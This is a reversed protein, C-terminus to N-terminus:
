GCGAHNLRGGDGLVLACYFAPFAQCPSKGSAIFRTAPNSRNNKIIDFPSQEHVLRFQNILDGLSSAQGLSSSTTRQISSSVCNCFCQLLTVEYGEDTKTSEINAFTCGAAAAIGTSAGRDLDLSSIRRLKPSAFRELISYVLPSQHNCCCL